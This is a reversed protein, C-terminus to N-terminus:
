KDFQKSWVEIIDETADLWEAHALFVPCRPLLEPIRDALSKRRALMDDFVARHPLEPISGGTAHLPVSVRYTLLHWIAQCLKFDAQAHAHPTPSDILTLLPLITHQSSHALSPPPDPGVLIARVDTPGATQNFFISASRLLAESLM